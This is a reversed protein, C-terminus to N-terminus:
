LVYVGTPLPCNFRCVIGNVETYEFKTRNKGSACVEVMRQLGQDNNHFFQGNTCTSPDLPATSEPLFDLSTLKKVGGRM